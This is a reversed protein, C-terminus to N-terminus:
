CSGSAVIHLLTLRDAGTVLADALTLPSSEFEFPDSLEGRFFLAGDLRLQGLVSDVPDSM